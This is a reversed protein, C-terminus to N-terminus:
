NGLGKYSDVGQQISSKVNDMTEGLKEKLGSLTPSVITGLWQVAPQFANVLQSNQWWAQNSFPTLQLVFIIVLNILFGRCFGFVAGLLRNGIGLIGVQFAMNIFFGIIAGAILTAAFLVAFSLGLAIYSVPQSADMGMTNSAQGVVSQVSGSSTIMAALSHSFLIAIVFAAVLTALSILERVLGRGFGALTSFLFIAILIYDVWNLDGAM